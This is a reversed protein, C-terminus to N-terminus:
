PSCCHAGWAVHMRPPKICLMSVDVIHTLVYCRLHASIKVQVARLALNRQALLQAAQELSGEPVWGTRVEPSCAEDSVTYAQLDSAADAQWPASSAKSM